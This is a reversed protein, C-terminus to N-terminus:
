PKAVACTRELEDELDRAFIPAGADLARAKAARYPFAAGYRAPPGSDLRYYDDALARELDIWKVGEREYATLLDEIADADASGIHLLLIHRVERHVLKQGLDRMRRLEEVHEAVFSRRLQALSAIDKQESCRSFPRNFAWDDADISVEAKMYGHARLYERVADRKENTDGEFLFPYRFVKWREADPELKKLIDEGRELDAFYEALSMKNLNAHSYTHNGLPHGAERWRRLVAELSPDEAVRKGNVFGYVSRIGHRSFASLLRETIDMRDMGPTPPGHRPLDDVTVAVEAATEAPTADKPTTEPSRPSGDASPRCAATSLVVALAARRRWSSLASCKGRAFGNM